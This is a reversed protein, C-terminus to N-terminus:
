IEGALYEMKYYAFAINARADAEGLEADLRANAADIMDTVLAMQNLYRDNVVNYNQTALEVSKRKTRLETYSQMYLTHAEQVDDGLREQTVARSEHSQLLEAKAKRVEKNAKFLSSISYSVGIGVYWINFNNDIPPIDYTFPGSFNDAAFIDVEPLKASRAMRLRQEAALTELTALRLTPSSEAARQQWAAESDTAFTAALLTTDPVITAEDVGLATCLRHNLIDRNDRIRRLALKLTEIQLEYRTVDNAIAMGQDLEARIHEVLQEALAINSEYVRIGNDAKYIDLYLGLALFRQAARTAEVSTEAQQRRVEALRVSADISGGAYVTQRAELTFSNGWHPQSFTTANSFDRDTMLVNGNYTAALSATVDPLRRNKAVDVDSKAVDVGAKSLRLDANGTEVLSFLQEVTMPQLSQSHVACPAAFLAAIAPVCLQRLKYM